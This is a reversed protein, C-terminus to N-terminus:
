DAGGNPEDLEEEPEFHEEEKEKPLKKPKEEKMETLKKKKGKLGMSDRLSLGINEWKDGLMKVIYEEKTPYLLSESIAKNGKIDKKMSKAKKVFTPIRRQQIVRYSVLSGTVAAIAGVIMLFYFTPVGPFIEAISVVVTFDRTESTFNAKGITLTAIFTEPMFFPEAIPFTNVTYTGDGNDIIFNSNTTYVIGRITFTLYAGIVPATSNNPDTLTILFQVTGGSALHIITGVSFLLSFERKNITLSIIAVRFDYNDKNLTVVISYEGAQLTETDLDLIYLHEATEHLFGTITSGLIPNGNEDLKHMIFSKEDANEIITFTLFDAFQFTFNLSDLVYLKQSLYLVDENSNLSTLRNIINIILSPSPVGNSFNQKVALINITYTGIDTVNGTNFFFSYYGPGKTADPKIQGSGYAWSYTVEANTIPASSILEKFYFTIGLTENWYETLTYSPFEDGTTYDHITLTTLVSKVKFPIQLPDPPTYPTPTTKSAYIYIHYSEGGIFSFQSTNFTYSYVGISTNFGILNISSGLANLSEDRFQLYITTPNALVPDQSQYQTTFNFTITVEDRWYIGTTFNSPNQSILSLYTQYDTIIFEIILSSQVVQSTYNEKDFTVTITYAGDPLSATDFGILYYVENLSDYGLSGSGSVPGSSTTGNYTYSQTDLNTISTSTLDDMYFYTLNLIEGIKITFIKTSNVSTPRDEITLSIVATRIEYNIKDLTIFVFYNGIEMNATNLDLIYRHDVTENLSGVKYAGLIPNGSGDLKQWNYSAEDPNSILTSTLVDTYNFEFYQTELAYVSESLFIMTKTGNIETPRLLITLYISFADIKTYNELAASIDIRYTGVTPTDATNLEFTYYGPNIPDPNIPGSGYDWDYAVRNTTLTNKTNNDFYKVTINIVENYYQSIQNTTLEVLTTYNHFSIGTPKTNITLLSYIPAPDIYGVKSGRIEIWYDQGSDGASFESSNITITFIGDGIGKSMDYSNIGGVRLLIEDPDNLGNWGVGGNTTITYNVSFTMNEGWTVVSDGTFDIFMSDYDEIDIQVKFVLTTNSTLSYNYHDVFSVPKWKDSMNVVFNKNVGYFNVIFTYNESPNRLYWFESESNIQGHAYGNSDTLLNAITYGTSNKVTVICSQIPVIAPKQDITRIELKALSTKNYINCAELTDVQITGNCPTQTTINFGRVDIFLGYAKFNDDRLINSELPPTRINIEIFDQQGGYYSNNFYILHDESFQGDKDLYYIKVTDLFDTMKELTINAKLLLKNGVETSSGNTYIYEQVHYESGTLINSQNVWIIHNYFKGDLIYNNRYVYSENLPIPIDNYDRNDYWIRYYYKTNNQWRFTAKGDNLRLSELVEGSPTESVNVYAYNVPDGDWDIIDFDITWLNLTIDESQTLRTFNYIDNNVSNNYVVMEKGSTSLTYNVTINYPGPELDNFMVSGNLGTTKYDLIAGTTYNRLYVIANPVIRGDVDYTTITVDSFQSEEEQLETTIDTYNYLGDIENLTLAYDYFRIDDIQGTFYGGTETPCCERYAVGTGGSDSNIINSPASTDKLDGDVYMIKAALSMDYTGIFLHWNQPDPVSYQSGYQWGGPNTYVIFAMNRTNYGSTGLIYASYKSVIQWVGRYGTTLDSKVWASVTIANTPNINPLNVREGQGGEPGDFNLCYDGMKGTVWDSSEMLYLDGDAYNGMSDSVKIGTGEDFRYWALGFRNDKNYYDIDYEVDKNGYYLYTDYESQGSSCNTEFWITAFDGKPYDKQVFYERLVGNEVIRVDKLSSNMKGEDVFGSYNFEISVIYDTLDEAKPNTINILRRYLFTINWWPDEGILAPKIQQPDKSVATKDLENEINFINALQNTALPLIISVALLLILVKIRKEKTYTQM